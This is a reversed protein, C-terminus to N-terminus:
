ISVLEINHNIITLKQEYLINRGKLFNDEYFISYLSRLFKSQKNQRTKAYKKRNDSLQQLLNCM